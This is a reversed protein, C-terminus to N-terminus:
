VYLCFNARKSFMKKINEKDQESINNNSFDLLQMAINDNEIAQAIKLSGCELGNGGILLAYLHNNNLVEILQSTVEDSLNNHSLTLVHLSNIHSLANCIELAGNTELNNSSLFLDQLSSSNQILNALSSAGEKDINNNFLDLKRLKILKSLSRSIVKIGTSQLLNNSLLIDELLVNQTIVTSLEDAADDTIGNDCLSLVNLHRLNKLASCIHKTGEDCLDNGDLWLQKLSHNKDIVTLINGVSQSGINNYSLDLVQLKNLHELSELIHKAGTANLKNGRLWLQELVNNCKLSLALQCSAHEDINSNELDIVKLKDFMNFSEILELADVQLLKQEASSFNPETINQDEFIHSLKHIFIFNKTNSWFECDFCKTVSDIQKTLIELYIIELAKSFDLSLNSNTGQVNQLTKKWVKSINFNLAEEANLVIGGLMVKELSPCKSITSGLKDVNSFDISNHAFQLVKINSLQSCAEAVKILGMQLMNDLLILTRLSTNKSIALALSDSIEESLLNDELWLLTLKSVTAIAQLVFNHSLNINALSLRELSKNNIIVSALQVEAEESVSTSDIVLAKLTSINQLAKIIRIPATIFNLGLAQLKNGTIISALYISAKESVTTGFINLYKISSIFSLSKLISESDHLNIGSLRFFNLCQNSRVALAVENLVEKPIYTNGFALVQLSSVQQLAKAILLIGKGFNNNHLLLQNLGTNNLIISEIYKSAEETLHNTQLDLVTLSQLKSLAELIKNSSSQLNNNYLQIMNLCQNHEIALALEDTVNEPMNINGLALVKLSHIQQLAKSIDSIGKGINNDNLLLKKLGTNEKIMSSIYTGSKENLQSDQLDLVTLSSLKSLAKLIGVASRELNNEYLQFNSLGRNCKIASTLERCAEKPINTKGLNLEQLSNLERLAKAIHVIGKGINNDNLVLYKLQINRRILYALAEGAAESIQNNHFELRELTTIKCLSELILNVSSKLMNSGICFVKLSTNSNIISSVATAEVQSINIDTLILKELTRVHKLENAVEIIESHPHNSGIEEAQLNLNSHAVSSSVTMTEVSLSTTVSEFELISLTPINTLHKALKIFAGNDFSCCVIKLHLLCQLNSDRIESMIKKSIHCNILTIQTLSTKCNLFEIIEQENARDLILVNGM